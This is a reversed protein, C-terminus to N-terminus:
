YATEKSIDTRESVDGGEIQEPAMYSPTGTIMGPQTLRTAAASDRLRAIGFDMLKVDEGGKVVMINEPKIDRHIIGARHAASLGEAIQIALRLVRAIEM